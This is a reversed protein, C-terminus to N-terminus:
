NYMALIHKVMYIIYLIYPKSNYIKIISIHKVMYYLKPLLHYYIAYFAGQVWTSWLVICSAWLWGFSTLTM